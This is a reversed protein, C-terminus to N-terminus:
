RNNEDNYNTTVTPEMKKSLMDIRDLFLDGAEDSLVEFVTQAACQEAKKKTGGTGHGMEIDDITVVSRFVPKGSTYQKDHGTSFHVTRRSKQCWEILRSKHDTESAILEDLDLHHRFLKNILVRNVKNYGKDLYMAGIMAELADGYINKQISSGATHRIIHRDLGIAKSLDNLTERSVIKSRLRTLEGEDARPFNIFLYDSVVAELIADGLFELRENNLRTGDDLKITASSHMLALKYLEINEPSIEFIGSIIAYTDRDRRFYREFPLLIRGLLSM